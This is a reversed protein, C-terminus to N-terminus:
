VPGVYRQPHIRPLCQPPDPKRIELANRDGIAHRLVVAIREEDITCNMQDSIEPPISGLWAARKLSDGAVAESRPIVLAKVAAGMESRDQDRVAVKSDASNLQAPQGRRLRRCGGLRHGGGLLLCRRDLAATSVRRSARIRLLRKRDAKASPRTASPSVSTMVSAWSASDARRSCSVIPTPACVAVPACVWCGSAWHNPSAPNPRNM